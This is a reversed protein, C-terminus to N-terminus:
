NIIVDIKNHIDQSNSGKKEINTSKKVPITFFITTGKGIGESEIWIKGEHKEIIRKCITMGLGSSELDHRSEDVKFFEDFVHRKQSEDLGIGEDAISITIIKEDINSNLYITGGNPSFKISNTIFHQIVESILDPDLYVKISRNINNKLQILDHDIYISDIVNNILDYLSIHKYNLTFDTSNMKALKLTKEVLQKVRNTARISVHLMEKSKPDEEKKELLPLLSILPGLPTKLDHGLQTIFNDKQQLLEEIQSTREQVIVELNKNLISLEDHAKQLDNKAQKLNSIDIGVGALYSKNNIDVRYGTFFYPIKKGSKSLFNGEVSSSGKLFVEDIRDSIKQKENDCFLDIPNIKHIEKPSYETVIEFNKNWRIFRGKEDFFYFIGPLSQLISDSFIKEELISQEANKRETIDRTIAQIGVIKRKKKLLSLHSEVFIETGDKKTVKLEIPKLNKGTILTNFLKFYNPLEKKDLAALQQFNKNLLDQESYGLIECAAKNFSTINGKLDMMIISDPSTQILSRYKEESEKLAENSAIRETIDRLLVMDAPNGKYSIKIGRVECVILKGDKRILEVTYPPLKKGSMRLFLNKLAKAKSKKTIFKVNLFNKGIIEEKSYGTIDLIKETIDKVTGRSDVIIVPDLMSNFLSNFHEKEEKLQKEIKKNSTIDTSIMILSTINGFSDHIPGLYTKYVSSSSGNPVGGHIEYSDVEGINLVKDISHQIIHKQDEPFFNFVNTGIFDEPPNKDITRNIFQITGNKSITMILFPATQVIAQWRDENEKITQIEDMQKKNEEYNSSEFAIEGM